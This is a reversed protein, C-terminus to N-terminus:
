GEGVIKMKNRRKELEKEGVKKKKRKDRDFSSRM